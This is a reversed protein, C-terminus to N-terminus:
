VREAREITPLIFTLLYRDDELRSSYETTTNKWIIGVVHESTWAALVALKYAIEKFM